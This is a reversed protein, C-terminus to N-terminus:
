GPVDRRDVQDHQHSRRQEHVGLRHNALSSLLRDTAENAEDESPIRGDRNPYCGLRASVAAVYLEQATPRVSPFPSVAAALAAALRRPLGPWNSAPRPTRRTWLRTDCRGTWLEYALRGVAYIDVPTGHELGLRQEPAVFRSTGGTAHAVLAANPGAVFKARSFGSLEVDIVGSPKHLRYRLCDPGINRHAIYQSHTDGLVRAFDEIVKALEFLNIPARALLGSFPRFDPTPCLFCTFWYGDHEIMTVCRDIRYSGGSARAEILPRDGLEPTDQESYVKVLWPLFGTEALYM